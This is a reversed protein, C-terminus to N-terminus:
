CGGDMIGFSNAPSVMCDCQLLSPDIDQLKGQLISFRSKEEESDEFYKAVAKRWAENLSPYESPRPPPSIFIFSPFENSM